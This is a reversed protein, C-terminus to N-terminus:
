LHDALILHYILAQLVLLSHQLMALLLSKCALGSRLHTWVPMMLEPFELLSYQLMDMLLSKCVLGSRLRMWVPMMLEPFGWLLLLSIMDQLTPQHRHCIM